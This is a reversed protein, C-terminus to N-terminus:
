SSQQKIYDLFGQKTRDGSFTDLEKDNKDLLVITPFGSIDLKKNLEKGKSESREYKVMKINKNKKNNEEAASNWEPMMKECHGCGNMHLLTLYKSGGELGERKELCKSIIKYSIIGVILVGAITAAKRFKKSKLIKKLM